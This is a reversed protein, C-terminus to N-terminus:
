ENRFRGYKLEYLRIVEANFTDLTWGNDELVSVMHPGVFYYPSEMQEGQNINRHKTILWRDVTITLQSVEKAMENLVTQLSTRRLRHFTDDETMEDGYEKTM